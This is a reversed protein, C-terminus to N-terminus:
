EESDVNLSLPGLGAGLEIMGERDERGTEEEEGGIPEESLLGMKVQSLLYDVVESGPISRGQNWDVLVLGKEEMFGALKALHEEVGESFRDPCRLSLVSVKEGFELGYLVLGAQTRLAFGGDAYGDAAMFTLGDYHGAFPFSTEKLYQSSLEIGKLPSSIESRRHQRIFVIKGAEQRSYKERIEQIHNFELIVKEEQDAAVFELQRWEWSGMIILDKGEKNGTFAPFLDARSPAQYIKEDPDLTIYEIAADLPDDMEPSAQDLATEVEDKIKELEIVLEGKKRFKKRTDPTAKVVSFKEGGIEVKTSHEFTEPLKKVPQEDYGIVEGSGADVFEVRIIKKKFM